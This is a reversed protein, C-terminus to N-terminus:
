ADRWQGPTTARPRCPPPDIDVADISRAGMCRAGIALIGSGCGYDLVRELWAGARRRATRWGACACARPPTPAPASPWAPDLRIVQAGAGPSMGAPCSGSAPTIEVPAFQSQTLRVWDQEAVACALVTCGAFLGAGAAAHRGRHADGRDRVAGEPALAALRGEAAAHRARRVAGARGRHRCRRRGGVREACGARRCRPRLLRSWPKPACHMNLELRLVAAATSGAAPRRRGRPPAGPAEPPPWRLAKLWGELYHISTGGEIFKADVMLERHLPINTHIGEVVTESLATRMRALAQERHRRARHDQRDDLRLQAARLLQHLRAFGGACGPGGPPHWMTIRGPRRRSSTRTRPM